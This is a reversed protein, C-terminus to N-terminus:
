DNKVRWFSTKQVSVKRIKNYKALHSLRKSIHTKDGDFGSFKLVAYITSYSVAERKGQLTKVIEVIAEDLNEGEQMFENLVLYDEPM